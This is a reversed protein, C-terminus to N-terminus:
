LWRRVPALTNDRPVDRDWSAMRVERWHSLTEEVYHDAATELGEGPKEVHHDVGKGDWEQLELIAAPRQTELGEDRPTGPVHRTEAEHDVVM